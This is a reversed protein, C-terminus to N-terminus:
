KKEQKIFILYSVALTKAKKKFFFLSFFPVEQM